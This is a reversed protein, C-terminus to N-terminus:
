MNSWFTKKEKVERWSSFNLVKTQQMNMCKSLSPHYDDQMFIAVSTRLHPSLLLIISRNLKQSGFRAPTKPDYVLKGMQVYPLGNFVKLSTQGLFDGTTWVSRIYNSISRQGKRRVRRPRHQVQTIVTSLWCLRVWWICGGSAWVESANMWTQLSLEFIFFLFYFIFWSILKHDYNWTIVKQVTTHLHLKRWWSSQTPKSIGTMWCLFINFMEQAGWSTTYASKLYISLRLYCFLPLYIHIHIMRISEGCYLATFFSGSYNKTKSDCNQIIKKKNIENFCSCGCAWIRPQLVDIIDNLRPNWVLSQLGYDM